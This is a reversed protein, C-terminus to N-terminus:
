SENDNGSVRIPGTGDITVPTSECEGTTADCARVETDGVLLLRGDPSWGFTGDGITFTHRTGTAVDVVDSTSKDYRCSSNDNCNMWSAFLVHRGDSSLRPLPMEFITGTVDITRLLEGTEANVVKHTDTTKEEPDVEGNPAEWRPAILERGGAVTPMTSSPLGNAKAVEGTRWNIALTSDDIGVYAYDGSLAVPPANWGGWTFDGQYPVRTAVKGTRVDRLVLEWHTNDEGKVSYALYPLAPDTGPKLDGLDLSFDRVAGDGSLVFYNSTADGETYATRGTRVMVGASTYYMAKVKGAVETTQGSGLHITSGQAVAWGDPDIPVAPALIGLSDDPARDPVLVATGGVVVLAAAIGAGASIIGHRRRMSRGRSLIETASPQPIAIQEAGDHLLTTLRDTM